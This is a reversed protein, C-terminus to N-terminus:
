VIRRVLRQWWTSRMPLRAQAGLRELFDAPASSSLLPAAKLDGARDLLRTVDAESEAPYVGPTGSFQKLTAIQHGNRHEGRRHDRALIIIPKGLQMATIISGMGAHSVFLDCALQLDHFKDQNLFAFSQLAVPRYSTPGIQAVVDGRGHRLAWEDVTRTLRDFPLQTGVSLLIV